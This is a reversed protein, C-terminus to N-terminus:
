LFCPCCFCGCDSDSDDEQQARTKDKSNSVLCDTLLKDAQRKLVLVAEIEKQQAGDQYLIKLATNSYKISMRLLQAPDNCKVGKRVGPITAADYCKKGIEFLALGLGWEVCSKFFCKNPNLDPYLNLLDSRMELSADRWVKECEAIFKLKKLFDERAKDFQAVIRQYKVINKQSQQLDQKLHEKSYQQQCEEAKEIEGVELYLEGLKLWVEFTYKGLFSLSSGQFVERHNALVSNLDDLDPRLGFLKVKNVDDVAIPTQAPSM